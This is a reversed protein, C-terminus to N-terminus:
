RKSVISVSKLQETDIRYIEIEDDAQDSENPVDNENEENIIIEEVAETSKRNLCKSRDVIFYIKLGRMTCQELNSITSNTYHM